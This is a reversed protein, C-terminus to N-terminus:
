WSELPTGLVIPPQHHILEQSSCSVPLDDRRRSWVLYIRDHDRVYVPHPGHLEASFSAQIEHTMAVAMALDDPCPSILREVHEAAHQYPALSRTVDEHYLLICSGEQPAPVSRKSASTVPADNTHAVTNKSLQAIPKASPNAPSSPTSAAGPRAVPPGDLREYLSGDASVLEAEFPIEGSVELDQRVGSVFRNSVKCLQALRRDSYRRLTEDHLAREVARRKDANTRRKGHTANAGLSYIFAEHQEGKVRRAQIQEIASQRAALVRHFGDALWLAGERDEFFVVPEFPVGEPDVIQDLEDSWSMREAYAEVLEQDTRVRPQTGGDLRLEAVDQLEFTSRPSASYQLAAERKKLQQERAVFASEVTATRQQKFKGSLLSKKGRGAAM